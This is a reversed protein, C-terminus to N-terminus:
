RPPEQETTDTAAADAAKQFAALSEDWIRQFYAQIGALGDPNIRYIRRTGEARAAVLGGDRLVRLHQSVAQRTIPLSEALEGVSAPRRAVREFIERRMPDGLIGLDVDRFSNM